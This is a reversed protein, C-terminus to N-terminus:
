GYPYPVFSLTKFKKFVASSGTVFNNTGTRKYPVPMKKPNINKSILSM